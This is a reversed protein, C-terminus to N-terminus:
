ASAAYATDSGATPATIRILKRLAPICSGCNTGCKLEAQLQSLRDDESGRCTQLQSTIQQDSIDFCSCIQAARRAGSGADPPSASLLRMGLATVVEQRELLPRLWPEAVGEGAVVFAEIYRDGTPGAHLRICRSQHQVPDDYRMATAASMGFLQEIALRQSAAPPAAAALRLMVGVRGQVEPERGFLIANAYAWSRGQAMLSNRLSLARAQDLWCMGILQWPLNAPDISVAAHKLEPQRSTPCFAPQTVANIGHWHQGQADTGAIFEEGWHMPIYAQRPRQVESSRAPILLDGRRSRVRVLEGNSLSLQRMDDPHLEV